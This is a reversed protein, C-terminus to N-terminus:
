VDSAHDKCLNYAACDPNTTDVPQGCYCKKVIEAKGTVVAVSWDPKIVKDGELDIEMFTELGKKILDATDEGHGKYGDTDDFTVKILIEKLM